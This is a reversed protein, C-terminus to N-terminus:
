QQGAAVVVHLSGDTVHINVHLSYCDERTLTVREESIRSTNGAHLQQCYVKHRALVLSYMLAVNTLNSRM